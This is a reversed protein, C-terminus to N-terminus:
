GPDSRHQTDGEGPRLGEAPEESGLFASRVGGGEFGDLGIDAIAKLPTLEIQVGNQMGEEGAPARVHIPIDVDLEALFTAPDRLERILIALLGMLPCQISQFDGDIEQAVFCTHGM